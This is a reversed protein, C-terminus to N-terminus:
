SLLEAFRQLVEDRVGPENWRRSRGSPHPIALFRRQEGDPLPVRWTYVTPQSKTDHRQSTLRQFVGRVRSGCLLYRRWPGTLLLAARRMAEAHTWGHPCLNARWTNILASREAGLIRVLRGGASYSPEPYLAYRPDTGHPNHEGVVLLDDPLDVM